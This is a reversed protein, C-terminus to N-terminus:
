VHSAPPCMTQPHCPGFLICRTVVWKIYEGIRGQVRFVSINTVADPPLTGSENSGQVLLRRLEWLVLSLSNPKRSVLYTTDKSVIDLEGFVWQIHLLM